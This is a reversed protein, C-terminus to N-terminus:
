GTRGISCRGYHNLKVDKGCRQACGLGGPNTYDTNDTGCVPNYEITVPCSSICAFLQDEPVSTTTTISTSTSSTTTTTTTTTTKQGGDSSQGGTAPGDFVFGDAQSIKNSDQPYAAILYSLMTVLLLHFLM